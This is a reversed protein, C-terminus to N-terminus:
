KGAVAVMLLVLVWFLVVGILIGALLAENPDRKQM